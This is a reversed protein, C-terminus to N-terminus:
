RGQDTETGMESPTAPGCASCGGKPRRGADARPHKRSPSWLRAPLFRLRAYSDFGAPGFGVLQQWPRDSNVIWDALIV